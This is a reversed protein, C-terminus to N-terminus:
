VFTLRPLWQLWRRVLKSQLLGRLELKPQLYATFSIFALASFVYSFSLHSTFLLLINTSFIFMYNLYSWIYSSACYELRLIGTGCGVDMVVANKLLSPNELLAQRYADTRVQVFGNFRM